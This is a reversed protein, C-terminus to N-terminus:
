KKEKIRNIRKYNELQFCRCCIAKELVVKKRKKANASKNGQQIAIYQNYTLYKQHKDMIGLDMLVLRQYDPIYIDKMETNGDIEQESENDIIENNIEDLQKENNIIENVYGIQNPNKNQLLVGCGECKDGQKFIRKKHIIPRDMPGFINDKYKEIKKERTKWGPIIRKQSHKNINIDSPNSIDMTDLHEEIDDKNDTDIETTTSKNIDELTNKHIKNTNIQLSTLSETSQKINDIDREPHVISDPDHSPDISTGSTSRFPSSAYKDKLSLYESQNSDSKISTSFQYFNRLKNHNNHSVFSINSVYKAHYIQKNNYPKYKKTLTRMM